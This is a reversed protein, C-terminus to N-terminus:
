LRDLHDRCWQTNLQLRRIPTADLLLITFSVGGNHTQWIQARQGRYLTITNEYGIPFHQDIVIAALPPVGEQVQPALEVESVAQEPQTNTAHYAVLELFPNLRDGRSVTIVLRTQARSLAVNILRRGYDGFVSLREGCVPDFFITRREGGQARHVTSVDVGHIGLQHLKSKIERRQARFPTVVLISSPDEHQILCLITHCIFDRSMPRYWGTDAAVAEQQIERVFLNGTGLGAVDIATREALWEPNETADAAVKLRSRYFLESVVKCIPQAMRNQEDLLCTSGHDADMMSFPSEGMWHQVLPLDEARIVPAIQEPDGALLACKGLPALLAAYAKGLQSAEDFVVLDYHLNQLDPLVHVARTVTMAVLRCACLDQRIKERIRSQIDEYESKWQFYDLDLIPDPRRAEVESLTAILEAPIGPLLHDRGTFHAAIFHLGIRKCSQRTEEVPLGTALLSEFAKDVAVIAHDVATNTSSLLLIRREPYQSAYQALICGLTTTKGTGPPGWLFGRRWATLKFADRQKQRLWPFRSSDLEEQPAVEDNEQDLWIFAARAGANGAWEIKVKELYDMPRVLIEGGQNPLAGGVFRLNIVNRTPIVSLINAHGAQWEAPRGELEEDVPRREDTPEVVLKTVPGNQIM